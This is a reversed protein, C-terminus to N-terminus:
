AAMSCHVTSPLRPLSCAPANRTNTMRSSDLSISAVQPQQQPSTLGNSINTSTTHWAPNVQSAVSEDNAILIGTGTLVAANWYLTKNRFPTGTDFGLGQTQLPAKMMTWEDEGITKVITGMTQGFSKHQKTQTTSPADPLKTDPPVQQAATATTILLTLFM